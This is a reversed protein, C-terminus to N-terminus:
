EENTGTPEPYVRRKEYVGWFAVISLISLLISEPFPISLVLGVVVLLCGLICDLAGVSRKAKMDALFHKAMLSLAVWSAYKAVAHVSFRGGM